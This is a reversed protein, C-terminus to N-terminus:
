LSMFWESDRKSVSKPMVVHIRGRVVQKVKNVTHNVTPVYNEWFSTNRCHWILYVAAMLVAYYVQKKFKSWRSHGIQSILSTLSNSNISIGLWSKVARICDCSYVCQFFLHQHTEDGQGCILCMASQSVGIRALKSTTQLRSQMALWGIFRHKPNNLRNWVVKDWHVRPKNGIITEYVSKSGIGVQLLQLNISGGIGM